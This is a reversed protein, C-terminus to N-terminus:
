EVPHRLVTKWKEEPTRRPDSLYIEHHKGRLKFGQAQAYAHMREITPPETSYPGIHLIQVSKGEKFRELRVKPLAAPVPEKKKTRRAKVTARAQELHEATVADPQVIMARWKWEDRSGYDFM